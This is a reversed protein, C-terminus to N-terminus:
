IKTVNYAHPGKSESNIEIRMNYWNNVDINVSVDDFLQTRFAGVDNVDYAKTWEDYSFDGTM